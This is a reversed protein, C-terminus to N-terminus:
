AEKSQAMRLYESPTLGVERKFANIFSTRSKFGVGTAIAEITVHSYHGSEGNMRRCAEKIRFGSLVNSFATGYRENIVQSVYTTNSDAQRALKSLTFDQQCIIDPNNLIEQIRYILSDKQEDSLSSRSYKTDGETPATPPTADPQAGEGVGENAAPSPEPHAAQAAQASETLAAIRQEYDRRLQRAEQEAQLLLRNKEYLSKNRAQLQRYKQWLLVSAVLVVALLLAGALLLLQQREQREALQQARAEEKKLEHIYNLEGISVLRHAHTEEKKELYLQRYRQQMATDGQHAYCEALLNCIGTAQDGVHAETAM